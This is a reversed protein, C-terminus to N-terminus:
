RILVLTGKSLKKNGAYDTAELMWVYTGSPQATGNFKGNWGQGATHTEYVMQGVRNMIRFVFSQIGSNVVPKLLDNSGDGNPTFATPVFVTDCNAGSPNLSNITIKISDVLCNSSTFIRALHDGPALGQAEAGTTYSNGDVEFRYPSGIGSINIRAKGPQSQFCTAHTIITQIRPVPPIFAPVTDELPWLCGSSDKVVFKYIGSALGNFRTGAVPITNMEISFPEQINTISMNISGTKSNFCDPSTHTTTIVPTLMGKSPMIFMTDFICNSSSLQLHHPGGPINTFRDVPMFPGGDIRAGTIASQNLFTITLTGGVTCGAPSIEMASLPLPPSYSVITIKNEAVCNNQDTIKLTHTGAGLNTFSPSTQGTGNDVSYIFPLTGTIRQAFLTGKKTECTDPTLTTSVEVKDVLNVTVTTDLICGDSGTIRIAYNGANLGAYKGTANANANNLMFQLTVNATGSAANIDISGGGNIGCQQQISINNVSVGQTVGSETISAADNVSIPLTCYTNLIAHNELDLEVVKSSAAAELAYVKSTNCDVPLSFLGYFARTTPIILDATIPKANVDIAVFGDLSALLLKDKYFVLDGASIYPTTGLIDLVNTHPNYREVRNGNCWFLVGNKDVTLSNANVNGILLRCASPQNLVTRYLNGQNTYYLTDKYLAISFYSAPTSVCPLNVQQTVCTGSSVDLSYLQSNSGVLLIKQASVSMCFLVAVPIAILKIIFYRKM